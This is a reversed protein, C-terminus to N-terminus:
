RRREWNCDIAGKYQGVVVACEIGNELRVLQVRSLSDGFKIDEATYNRQVPVQQQASERPGCGLLLFISLWRMM